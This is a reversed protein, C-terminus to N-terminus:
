SGERNRWVRLGSERLAAAIFGSTTTKGNTGTVMISGYELDAALRKVIDPSIRQATLGVISTGGGFGLRRSMAGVLRGTLVAMSARLSIGQRKTKRAAKGRSAKGPANSSNRKARWGRKQVAAVDTPPSKELSRQQDM